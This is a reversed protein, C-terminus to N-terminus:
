KSICKDLKKSTTFSTNLAVKYMSQKRVIRFHRPDKKNWFGQQEEVDNLNCLMFSVPCCVVCHTETLAPQMCHLNPVQLMSSHLVFM